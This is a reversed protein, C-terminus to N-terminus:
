WGGVWNWSEDEQEVGVHAREVGGEDDVLRNPDGSGVRAAVHHPVNGLQVRVVARDNALPCVIFGDDNSHASTVRPHKVDSRSDLRRIACRQIVMMMVLARARHNDTNRGRFHRVVLLEMAHTHNASCSAGPTLDLDDHTSRWGCGGDSDVVDLAAAAVVAVAVATGDGIAAIGQRVNAHPKAPSGNMVGHGDAVSRNWRSECSPRPRCCERDVRGDALLERRTGLRVRDRPIWGVVLRRPQHRVAENEVHKYLVWCVAHGDLEGDVADNLCQLWPVHM